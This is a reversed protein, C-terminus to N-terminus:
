IAPLRKGDPGVIFGDPTVANELRSGDAQFFYMDDGIQKWGIVMKGEDKTKANEFFYTKGDVTKVWGTVMNGETDIYYTNQVAVLTQIDNIVKTEVANITIFGNGAVISQGNVNITLKFKNTAINFTWAVQTADITPIVNPKSVANETISPESTSDPIAPGGGGSGGDGGRSSSKSDDSSPGPTPQPTPNKTWTATLILNETVEGINQGNTFTRGDSSTWKSFSYGSKVFTNAYLVTDEGEFAYQTQMNGSSDNAIFNITHYTGSSTDLTWKAYFVLSATRGVLTTVQSDSFDDSTFWGGFIYHNRTINTSNPIEITDATTWTWSEPKTYGDVWTGRNVNYQITYTILEWKGYITKPETIKSNFNWLTTFDATTYWGRFAYGNSTPAPPEVVNKGSVIYQNAPYQIIDGAYPHVAGGVLDFRVEYTVADEWKAYLTFSETVATNFNWEYSDAEDLDTLSDDNNRYWAVFKKNDQTPDSPKDVSQGSKVLATDNPNGDRYNFTVEHATDWKAVFEYDEAKNAPISKVINQDIDGKKYWANFLKYRKVVSYEGPLEVAETYRRSTPINTLGDAWHAANDAVYATVPTTGDSDYYTINYIKENWKAYLSKPESVTYNSGGAGISAGIGDTNDYWSNVSDFEYGEVDAIIPLVTSQNLIVDVAAPSTGYGNANYIVRAKWRAYVTVKVDNDTTLDINGTYRNVDALDSSSFWGDFTYGDPVSTPNPLTVNVGYTKIIDAPKTSILAPRTTVDFEITYKNVLWKAYINENAGDITSIDTQGNYLNNFTDDDTYWGDFHYGAKSPSALTVPMGYTKEFTDTVGIDGGNANYKINYRIPTWKAYLKIDDLVTYENGGAGVFNATEWNEGDYWGGFIYGTASITPLVIKENRSAIKTPPNEGHGNSEFTVTKAPNTLGKIRWNNDRSSWSHGDYWYSQGDQCENNTNYFYKSSNRSKDIFLNLQGGESSVPKIIISFYTDKTLEVPNDLEYTYFGSLSNSVRQITKINGEGPDEMESDKTRVIIDFTTNTDYIGVNVANLVQNEDSSVKFVNACAWNGPASSGSRGSYGTTDYHYNYKYKSSEIADVTTLTNDLSPEYYSIWFYGGNSQSYDGWSNRCLFGGREDASESSEAEEYTDGYFFMEGSLSDDWGVIMITHNSEGRNNSHYFWETGYNHSDKPSQEAYYSVTVAGNDMIAQKISDIETKNIFQANNLVYTRENFAYKGDLGNTEIISMKDYSTNEDELVMGMYASNLRIAIQENGGSQSWKFEKAFEIPDPYKEEFYARNLENYDNGELGPKDINISGNATVSKLNQAFYALAAPSLNHSNDKIIGKKRLSVEYIGVTAIAWCVGYSGQNRIPPIISIDTGPIKLKRSDYYSPFSSGLLKNEFSDTKVLGSNNNIVPAVYDDSIHGLGFKYTEIAENGSTIGLFNDEIESSTAIMDEISINEEDFLVVSTTSIIDLSESEFSTDEDEDADSSTAIDEEIEEEIKEKSEEEIITECEEETENEVTTEYKKETENEVVIETEEKSESEIIAENEEELAHSVSVIDIGNAFTVIHPITINLMLSVILVVSLMKKNM